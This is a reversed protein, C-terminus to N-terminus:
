KCIKFAIPYGLCAMAVMCGVYIAPEFPNTLSKKRRQLAM